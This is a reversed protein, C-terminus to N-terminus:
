KGREGANGKSAGGRDDTSDNGEWWYMVCVAHDMVICGREVGDRGGPCGSGKGTSGNREKWMLVTKLHIIICESVKCNM